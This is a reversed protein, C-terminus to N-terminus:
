ERAPTISQGIRNGDYRADFFGHDVSRHRWNTFAEEFGDFRLRRREIHALDCDFRRKGEVVLVTVEPM